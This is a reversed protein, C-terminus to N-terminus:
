RSRDRITTDPYIEPRAGGGTGFNQTFGKGAVGSGLDTWGSLINRHHGSSHCWMVHATMPDSATAINESFGFGNYGQKRMREAPGTPGEGTAPNAPAEHAFFGRKGMDISHGRAAKVLRNDIRLARLPSVKTITAADLIKVVSEKDIADYSAGGPQVIATYGMMMRYENTIRVQNWERDDAVERRAPNYVDM